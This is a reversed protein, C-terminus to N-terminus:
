NTACGTNIFVPILYFARHERDLEGATFLEGSPTVSLVPRGSVDRVEDSMEFGLKFSLQPPRESPEASGIIASAQASNGAAPRHQQEARLLQDRLQQVAVSTLAGERAPKLDADVVQVRGVFQRQAPAEPKDWTLSSPEFSPANDNEDAVHVLLVATATLRAAPQEASDVALVLFEYSEREERDFARLASVRGDREDVAFYYAAREDPISYRVTGNLGSDADTASVQVVQAGPANNEGITARILASSFRPSNDNLDDLQVQMYCNKLCVNYSSYEYVKLVDYNM